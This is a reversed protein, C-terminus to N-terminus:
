ERMKQNNARKEILYYIKFYVNLSTLMFEINVLTLKKNSCYKKYIRLRLFIFFRFERRYFM